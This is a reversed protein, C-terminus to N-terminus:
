LKKSLGKSYAEWYNKGMFKGWLNEGCGFGSYKKIKGALAMKM